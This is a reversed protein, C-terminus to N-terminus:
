DESDLNNLPYEQVNGYGRTVKIALLGGCVGGLIMAVGWCVFYIRGIGAFQPLLFMSIGVTWGAVSGICTFLVLLLFPFLKARSRDADIRNKKTTLMRKLDYGTISSM